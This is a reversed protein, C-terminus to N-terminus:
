RELAITLLYEVPPDCYPARRIVEVDYDGDEPLRAAWTRAFEGAAGRVVQKTARHTVQLQLARGPFREIRAQLRDGKRAPIQYRDREALALRGAYQTQGSGWRLGVTRTRGGSSPPAGLITFGTIRLGAATRTAIVRGSALSVAGDAIRMEWPPQRAGPTALRSEEIACRMEPTFLLDYMRLFDARTEVPIPYPLVATVRLPFAFFGAVRARNGAAIAAVLRQQFSRAAEADVPLPQAGARVWVLAAVVVAAAARRRSSCLRAM